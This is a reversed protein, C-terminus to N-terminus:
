KAIAKTAVMREGSKFDIVIKEGNWKGSGVRWKGSEVKWEVKWEGSKV